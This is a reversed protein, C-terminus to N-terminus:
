ERARIAVVSMIDGPNLRVTRDGIGLRAIGTAVAGALPVGGRRLRDAAFRLTVRRGVNAHEVPELGATALMASLTARSFFYYHDPILQRWRRPAVRFWVCDVTPTEILIAGGPALLEHARELARRPSDLHELVHVMTIADFGGDPARVDELTGTRVRHGAARAQASTIPDPEVGEVAAFSESAADLLAGTAAGVDLLTGAAPAHRRLREIRERDAARRHVLEADEVAHDVIGLAAVRDALASSRHADAGGAFTFDGARGAVYVLGCRACRVLPGDLRPSDLLHIAKTSGCLDCTV